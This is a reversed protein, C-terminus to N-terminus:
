PVLCFILGYSQQRLMEKQEGAKQGQSPILDEDKRDVLVNRAM